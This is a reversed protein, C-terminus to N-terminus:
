LAADVRGIQPAPVAQAGIKSRAVQFAWLQGPGGPGARGFSSRAAV